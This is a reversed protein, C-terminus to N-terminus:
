AAPICWRPCLSPHRFLCPSIRSADPGSPPWPYRVFFLLSPHFSPLSSSHHHSHSFRMHFYVSCQMCMYLLVYMCTGTIVSTPWDPGGCLISVKGINLSHPSLHQYLHLSFLSHSLVSLPSLPSSLTLSLSHCAATPHICRRLALASTNGPSKSSSRLPGCRHIFSVSTCLSLSLSFPLSPPLSFPIWVVFSHSVGIM